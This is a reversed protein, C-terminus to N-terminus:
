NSSHQHWRKSFTSTPRSDCELFLEMDSVQLSVKICALGIRGASHGLKENALHIRGLAPRNM